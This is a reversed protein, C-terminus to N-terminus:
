AMSIVDSTSLVTIWLGQEFISTACPPRPTWYMSFIYEEAKELNAHIITASQYCESIISVGPDTRTDM